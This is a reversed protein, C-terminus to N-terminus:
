ENVSEEMASFWDLADQHSEDMSADVASWDIEAKIAKAIAPYIIAFAKDTKLGLDEMFENTADEAFSEVIQERRYDDGDGLEILLDAIHEEITRM